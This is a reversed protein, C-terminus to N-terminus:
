PLAELLCVVCLGNEKRLDYFPLKEKEKDKNRKKGSVSGSLRSERVSQAKGSVTQLGVCRTSHLLMSGETTSDMTGRKRTKM